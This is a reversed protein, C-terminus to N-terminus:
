TIVLLFLGFLGSLGIGGLMSLRSVPHWRLARRAFLAAFLALLALNLALWGSLITHVDVQM